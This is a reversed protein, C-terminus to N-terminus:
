GRVGVISTIKVDGTDVIKLTRDTEITVNYVLNANGTLNIPSKSLFAEELETDKITHRTNKNTTVIIKDYSLVKDTLTIVNNDIRELLEQKRYYEIMNIVQNKSAFKGVLFSKIVDNKYREVVTDFNFRGVGSVLNVCDNELIASFTDTKQPQRKVYYILPFKVFSHDLSSILKNDSRHMPISLEASFDSTKDMKPIGDYAFYSGYQSPASPIYKRTSSYFFDDQLVFSTDLRNNSCRRCCTVFGKKYPVKYHTLYRYRKTAMYFFHFRKDGRWNSDMAIVRNTAVIKDKKDLNLVTKHQYVFTSTENYFEREPKNYSISIFSNNKAIIVSDGLVLDRSFMIFRYVSILGTFLSPRYNVGNAKCEDIAKENAEIQPVADSISAGYKQEQYTKTKDYEFLIDYWLDYKTQKYNGSNCVELYLYSNSYRDYLVVYDEIVRNLVDVTVLESDNRLYPSNDAASMTVYPVKSTTRVLVVDEKPMSDDSDIYVCDEDPVFSFKIGGKKTIQVKWQQTEEVIELGFKVMADKIIGLLKKKIDLESSFDIMNQLDSATYEIKM